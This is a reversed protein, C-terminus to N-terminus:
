GKFETYDQILAGSSYTNIDTDMYLDQLTQGYNEFYKSKYEINDDQTKTDQNSQATNALSNSRALKVKKAPTVHKDKNMNYTKAFNSKYKPKKLLNKQGLYGGSKTHNNNLIKDDLVVKKHIKNSIEFESDVKKTINSRSM